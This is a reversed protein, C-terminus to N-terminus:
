NSGGLKPVLIVLSVPTRAIIRQAEYGFFLKHQIARNEAGLVVLEYGGREIEDLLASHSPDYALRIIKPEIESGRFAPSIRALEERPPDSRLEPLDVAVDPPPPRSHPVPWTGTDDRIARPSV